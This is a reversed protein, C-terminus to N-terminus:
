ESLALLLETKSFERAYCLYVLVTGPLVTDVASLFSGGLFLLMLLLYYEWM